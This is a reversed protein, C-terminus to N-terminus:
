IDIENMELRNYIRIMNRSFKLEKNLWHSKVMKLAKKISKHFKLTWYIKFDTRINIPSKGDM